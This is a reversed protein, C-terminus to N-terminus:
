RYRAPSAGRRLRDSHLAGRSRTRHALHTEHHDGKTATQLRACSSASLGRSYMPLRTRESSRSTGPSGSTPPTTPAALDIPPWLCLWHWDEAIRALIPGVWFMLPWAVLDRVDNQIAYASWEHVVTWRTLVVEAAEDRSVAKAEVDVVPSGVASRRLEVQLERRDRQERVHRDRLIEKESEVRYGLYQGCGLGGLALILSIALTASPLRSM